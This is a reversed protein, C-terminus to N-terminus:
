IHARIIAFFLYQPLTFDYCYTPEGSVLALPDINVDVILRLLTVLTEGYGKGM